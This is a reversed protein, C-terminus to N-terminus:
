IDSVTIQIEVERTASKVNFVEEGNTTTYELLHVDCCEVITAMERRIAARLKTLFGDIIDTM